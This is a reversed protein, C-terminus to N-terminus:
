HALQKLCVYRALLFTALASIFDTTESNLARILANLPPEKGTNVTSNLLIEPHCLSYDSIIKVSFIYWLEPNQTQAHIECKCIRTNDKRIVLLCTFKIHMHKYDNGKRYM